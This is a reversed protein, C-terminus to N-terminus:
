FFSNNNKSEFNYILQILENLLSEFEVINKQKTLYELRQKLTYLATSMSKGDRYKEIEIDISTILKQIDISVFDNSLLFLEFDLKEYNDEISEYKIDSIFKKIKKKILTSSIYFLSILFYKSIEIKQENTWSNLELILKDVLINNSFIADKNIKLVGYLNSIYNNKIAILEHGNYNKCIIKNLLIELLNILRNDDITSQYLNYQYALFANISQYVSISNKSLNLITMFNDIISDLRNQNIKSISLLFVTKKWYEEFTPFIKTEEAEIHKTINHLSNFLYEELANDIVLRKESEKKLYPEFIIKLDNEKIYKISSYLELKNLVIDSEQVQRTISINIFYEIITKFETYKEIAFGNGLVFYLLNKHRIEAESSNSSFVTGGSEVTRKSNEKAKLLSSINFAFSYIFNFDKFIAIIPSIAKKVNNPVDDYKEEIDYELIDQYKKYDIKFDYKLHKLLTNRNFMSLFLTIYNKSKLCQKLIDEYFYYSDENNGLQYLIFAKELDNKATNTEFKFELINNISTGSYLECTFPYYEKDNIMIGGIGAKSLIEFVKDLKYKYEKLFKDDIENKDLASLFIQFNKYYIDSNNLNIFNLVIFKEQYNLYIKKFIKQIQEPLLTNLNDFPLLKDYFYNIIDGDNIYKSEQYQTKIRTLFNEVRKNKDNIEDDLVLSTIGHNELYKIESKNHNLSLLYAPPKVKSFSQIWKTIQKLNYDGYSYGIFLVTHTSLVSKIFNEILPFDYTYNLYDDEKFVINHHEFDGHMKILKKQTTSKVLDKDSVIVDYMFANDAVTKDLLKDWNTTIVCQPRIEFILKHINSPELTTNFLKKLKDYYLYEGFELYYLQALKLYDQEGTGELDNKLEDIINNWLPMKNSFTDSSKSVGAGVFIALRNDNNAEIISKIHKDM